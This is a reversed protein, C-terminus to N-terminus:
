RRQCLYGMITGPSRHPSYIFLKRCCKLIFWLSCDIWLAFTTLQCDPSEFAIGRPRLTLTYNLHQRGDSIRYRRSHWCRSREHTLVRDLCIAGVGCCLIVLFRRPLSCATLKRRNRPSTLPPPECARPRAACSTLVVYPIGRIGDSGEVPYTQRKLYLYTFPLSYYFYFKM